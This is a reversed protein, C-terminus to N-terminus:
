ALHESISMETHKDLIADIKRSDEYTEGKYLVYSVDEVVVCQNTSKLKINRVEESNVITFYYGVGVALKVNIANSM